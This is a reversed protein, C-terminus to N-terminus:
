YNNEKYIKRLLIEEEEDVFDISHMFTSPFRDREIQEARNLEYHEKRWIDQTKKDFMKFEGMTFGKDALFEKLKM